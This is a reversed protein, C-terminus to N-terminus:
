AVTTAYSDSSLLKAFEDAPLPTRFYSGQGETCGQNQLALFQERTEVGEAVVRLHFSRAAGVVADVIGADGANSCLGRVVSGDIKLTDLPISKLHTLSSRGTGFHDLAIKIGMDKLCRLVTVTAQLDNELAIESVEFELQGPDLGSDRLSERVHRLFNKARLETGATDISMPPPGRNEDQWLRTQRCVHRLTRIGIPIGAPLPAMARTPRNWRILAEAGVMAGTYLDIKPEYHVSFEHRDLAHRLGTELFRREIARENMHPKFFAYGDPGQSKASSMAFNANTILLEGDTGDDPYICIGINAALAPDHVAALLKQAVLAAQDEHAVYTVLIVFDLAGVRSVTDTLRLGDTLREGISRLPVNGPERDSRRDARDVSLHLVALKERQRRAHAIARAIRDGLLQRNPLGTFEDHLASTPM